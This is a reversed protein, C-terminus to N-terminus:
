RIITEIALNDSSFSSLPIGRVIRTELTFRLAYHTIRLAHYETLPEFDFSFTLLGKGKVWRGTDRM